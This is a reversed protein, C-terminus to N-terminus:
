APERRARDLLGSLGLTAAWRELYAADLRGHQARMLGVVDSWQRESGGAERYWDLKHLVVDEPTAFFFTEVREGARLNAAIRRGFATREYESDNVVFVDVKFYAPLYILNFSPRHEVADRILEADAYFDSALAAAIPAAHEVRVDAVLDVDLTARAHGFTSSAVSGGIQYGIGLREFVAVVPRLARLIRDDSM